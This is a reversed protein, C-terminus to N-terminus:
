MLPLMFEGCLDDQSVRPRVTAIAIGQPAPLAVATPPFRRCITAPVIEGPFTGTAIWRCTGCSFPGEPKRSLGDM